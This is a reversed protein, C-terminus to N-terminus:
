EEPLFPEVPTNTRFMESYAEFRPHDRWGRNTSSVSTLDYKANPFAELVQQLSKKNLYDQTQSGIWIRELKKCSLLPSLDEVRTICLNIDLLDPLNALASIDTIQIMFVELYKLKTLSGLVSIDKLGRNDSLILVQLNTLPKLFDLNTIANHGLDLAILDTCYRLCDVDSARLRNTNYGDQKTSFAVADTRVKWKKFHVTWVVKTDPYLERISGLQENTLSCDHMTLLRLKPFFALSDTFAEPDAIKAGSFDLSDIYSDFQHGLLTIMRHMSVLPYEKALANAEEEALSADMLDLEKLLPLCSVYERLTDYETNGSVKLSSLQSSSSGYVPDEWLVTCSPHTIIYEAIVKRPLSVSRLDLSSLNTLIGSVTLFHSSADDALASPVWETINEPSTGDSLIFSVNANVQPYFSLLEDWGSLFLHLPEYDELSPLVLVASFEKLSPLSEFAEQVSSLDTIPEEVSITDSAPDVTRGFLVLPLPTPVPTVDPVIIDATGPSVAAAASPVPTDEPVTAGGGICSITLFLLLLVALVRIQKFHM